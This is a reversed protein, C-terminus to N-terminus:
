EKEWTAGRGRGKVHLVGEAKLESLKKKILQVSVGPCQARIEGLTFPGEQRRITELVLDGKSGPVAISEFKQALESYSWRLASLFFNWWPIIENGGKHWGKSCQELVSYYSEKEQEVLRELSIYRCVTYERQHLLLTTLLRSVRGNGDRFPHICLFDFVFTAIVLLRPAQDSDALDRYISCLRDVSAPAEDASVPIFRIRREQDPLIEIIENNKSKLRGADSSSGGQALSHLYLITEPRIKVPRKRTFIWDLARRYGAIEEEPRDLPRAKGLILPRLRTQKVSVGEIRNSSEVSHIMAQERLTKLVEPKQRTWLEQRGKAEMCAGLLWATSVPV